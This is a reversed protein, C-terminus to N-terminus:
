KDDVHSDQTPSPRRKQKRKAETGEDVTDMAESEGQVQAEAKRKKDERQREDKSKASAMAEVLQRLSLRCLQMLENHYEIRSRPDVPIEKLLVHRGEYKAVTCNQLGAEMVKIWAPQPLAKKGAQRSSQMRETAQKITIKPKGCLLTKQMVVRDTLETTHLHDQVSKGDPGYGYQLSKVEEETLPVLKNAEDGAAEAPFPARLLLAQQQM